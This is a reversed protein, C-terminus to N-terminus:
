FVLLKGTVTSAYTDNVAKPNFNEDEDAEEEFESPNASSNSQPTPDINSESRLAFITYITHM